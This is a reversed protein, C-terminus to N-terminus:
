SLYSARNETFLNEITKFQSFIEVGTEALLNKYWSYKAHTGGSFGIVSMGAAQAAQIGPVSDEIVLCDKSSFGMSKAALLFLDPHPKGLSVQEASFIHLTPFYSSLNTVQLSNHIKELTGSSAVCFARHEKQLFNLFSNIGSIAKLEKTLHSAILKLMDNIDTQAFRIGFSKELEIFVTKASKGTFRKLLEEESLVIGLKKLEKSFYKNVIAESDVLVGDCDFLICQINCNGQSIM